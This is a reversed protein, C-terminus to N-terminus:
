SPVADLSELDVAAWSMRSLNTLSTETSQMVPQLKSAGITALWMMLAHHIQQRYALWTASFSLDRVGHEALESLYLEVLQREWARRDETELHSSLAYVLDLTGHGKTICQWDYLGMGGDRTTYWNGPHVDSHLLTRPQRSNIALSAMLKDFFEDRRAYLAPAIAERAREFGVMTRKRNNITDNLNLQWEESTRLWPFDRDLRDQGWYAAHYRAILSVMGEAMARTVHRKNDEFIAGRTVSVDELVFLSRDSRPDHAIYHGVPAEIDLEPRMSRYFGAESVLLGTASTLLRTTFTPSSKSFLATPLGAETGAANYEVTFARRSSTGSSGAGLNFGTVAAGPHGFCLAATLWDVTLAEPSPPVSGLSTPRPTTIREWGINGAVKPVLAVMKVKTALAM